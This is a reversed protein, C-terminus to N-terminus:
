CGRIRVTPNMSRLKGIFEHFRDFQNLLRVKGRSSRVFLFGIYNFAPKISVIESANVEKKRLFSIFTISGDPAFVIRYPTSLVYYWLWAMILMPGVVIVLVPPANEEGIVLLPLLLVFLLPFALYALILLKYGTPLYLSYTETGDADGQPAKVGSKFKFFLKFKRPLRSFSCRARRPYFSLMESAFIEVPFATRLGSVPAPFFFYPDPGSM